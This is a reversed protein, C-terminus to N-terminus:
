GNNEESDSADGGDPPLTCDRRLPVVNKRRAHADTPIQEHDLNFMRRTSDIFRGAKGEEQTRRKLFNIPEHYLKHVLSTVLTELAEETEPPLDPGLRKLTKALERRGIDEGQELLDVITPKLDLSELWLAFQATESEIIAEAKVAEERRQALNEEVVEKLDDIDYLYVNDLANVDPDIDRPVAIDIFFMPRNKRAKLVPKIDKAHIIAETAGTSSIIIDAEPLRRMLENFHIARGNFRGALEEARTFTRNSVLVEKIGANVLHMAALEAMEGAGILLATNDGMDGFIKKALEVAAYSISVASSAIATETRVRKGVTFAKHLLRNLVVRSTNHEVSNRYADKLQGLIQPEGMVMSDLSSAVTFVHNVADLGQHIYVHPALTGVSGGCAKAWFELIVEPPTGQDAVAMIEVRNCTSLLVAESIPGTDTVLGQARPDCDTLAYSERIEVGATKHNLGILYLTQDM